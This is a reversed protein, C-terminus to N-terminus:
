QAVEVLHERAIQLPDRGRQAAEYGTRHRLGGRDRGRGSRRGQSRARWCHGLRGLCHRPVARGYPWERPIAARGPALLYMRSPLGGPHVAILLHLGSGGAALTEPLDGRGTAERPVGNPVPEPCRGQRGILPAVPPRAFNIGIQWVELRAEGLATRILGAQPVLKALLTKRARAGQHGLPDVGMARVLRAGPGQEEM